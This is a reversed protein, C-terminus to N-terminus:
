GQREYICTRGRHAYSALTGAVIVTTVALCVLEVGDAALSTRRLLIPWVLVLLGTIPLDFVLVTIAFMLWRPMGRAPRQKLLEHESLRTM